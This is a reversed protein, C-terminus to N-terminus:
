TVVNSIQLELKLQVAISIRPPTAPQCDQSSAKTRVLNPKEPKRPSNGRQNSTSANRTKSVFAVVLLSSIVVFTDPVALGLPTDLM